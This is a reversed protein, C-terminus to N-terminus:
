GRNLFMVDRSLAQLHQGGDVLITTGTIAPSEAVFRVTRAVDQPTSSGGLPTQQHAAQFEQETQDASPLSIGPAVGVVRIRPALAQALMTTAAQLGAKSLTYSLFDPNYNYLKQDLLNIVVATQGEALTEALSQALVLPAALNPLLHRLLSAYNLDGICDYEFLSANNVLVSVPGLMEFCAGLLARAQGEDALDAHLAYAAVGLARIEAVTAEAEQRSQGYHVGIAYGARALELAIAKGVRKAAGTVLAVKPLNDPLEAISSQGSSSLSM